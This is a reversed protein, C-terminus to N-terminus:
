VKLSETGQHIEIDDAFVNLSGSVHCYSGSTIKALSSTYPYLHIYVCDCSVVPLQSVPAPLKVTYLVAKCHCNGEYSVETATDTSRVQESDKSSAM